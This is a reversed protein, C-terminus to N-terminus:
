SQKTISDLSSPFYWNTGIYQWANSTLRGVKSKGPVDSRWFHRLLVSRGCDLILTIRTKRSSSILHLITSIERDSIDLSNPGDSDIPCLAIISLPVSGHLSSILRSSISGGRPEVASIDSDQSLYAAEHGLFYIIIEDGPQINPNTILSSLTKVINNCTPSLGTSALQHSGILLQIWGEPMGLHEIVYRQMLLADAICGRLPLNPYTDIGILVAWTQSGSANHSPTAPSIEFKFSPSWKFHLYWWLKVAFGLKWTRIDKSCTRETTEPQNMAKDRPKKINLKKKRRGSWHGFKNEEVHKKLTAHEEIRDIDYDEKVHGRGDNATQGVIRM